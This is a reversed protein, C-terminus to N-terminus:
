YPQSTSRVRNGSQRAMKEIRQENMTVVWEQRVVAEAASMGEDTALLKMQLAELVVGIAVVEGLYVIAELERGFKIHRRPEGLMSHRRPM